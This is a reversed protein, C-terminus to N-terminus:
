QPHGHLATDLSRERDSKIAGPLVAGTIRHSNRGSTILFVDARGFKGNSQSAEENYEAM